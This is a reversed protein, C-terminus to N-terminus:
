NIMVPALVSDLTFPEQFHFRATVLSLYPGPLDFVPIFFISVFLEGYLGLALGLQAERGYIVPEIFNSLTCSKISLISTKPITVVKRRCAWQM